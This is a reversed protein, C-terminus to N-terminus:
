AIRRLLYERHLPWAYAASLRPLTLARSRPVWWGSRLVLVETPATMPVAPIRVAGGRSTRRRMTVVAVLGLDFAIMISFWGWPLRSGIAHVADAAVLAITGITNM